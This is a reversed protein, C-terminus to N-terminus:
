VQNIWWIEVLYSIVDVQLYVFWCKFIIELLQLTLVYKIKQTLFHGAYRLAYSM